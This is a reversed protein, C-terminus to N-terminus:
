VPVAVMEVNIRSMVGTKIPEDKFVQTIYGEAEYTITYKAQSLPTIEYRGDADYTAIKDSGTVTIVLKPVIKKDVTLVKGNFGANKTGQVQSLQAAFTFQTALAPNTDGYFTNATKLAASLTTNVANFADVKEDGKNGGKSLGLWANYSAKAKVIAANFDAIFTPPMTNNALLAAENDTLFPTASSIFGTMSAWNGNKAKTFYDFGAQTYLIEWRNKEFTDTIYSKFFVILKVLAARDAEEVLATDAALARRTKDDPLLDAAQLDARLAEFFAVTYKPKVTMLDAAHEILLNICLTATSVFANQSCPYKPLPM